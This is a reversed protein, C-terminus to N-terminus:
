AVASTWLYGADKGAVVPTDETVCPYIWSRAREDYYPQEMVPYGSLRYTYGWSPSGMSALPTVDSYVLIAVKGWVPDFDGVEGHRCRGVVYKDVGFYRALLAEDIDQANAAMVHKVRDIVHKHNVLQDHVAEGVALVNPNIGIKGRILEKATNVAVSPTASAHSWQATGSLATTGGFNTAAQALTGAENEIQLDVVGMARMAAVSGLQVGPVEMAEEQLEIPVPVEVARQETAYRAGSYGIDIRSMQAGPARRIDQIAFHEARFQVVNGGRQGVAVVPFLEPYIAMPQVYGRAVNSLVPDVIRAGGPTLQEGAM